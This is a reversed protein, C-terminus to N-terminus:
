PKRGLWPRTGRQGAASTQTASSLVSPGIPRVTFSTAASSSTWAPQSARVGSAIAAVSDNAAL